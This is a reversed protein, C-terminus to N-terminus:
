KSWFGNLIAKLDKFSLYVMLTMIFIWSAYHIAMRVNEPLPRRFLAEISYFLIQGGDLIPLPILNLIALNISILM